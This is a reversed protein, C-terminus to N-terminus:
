NPSVGEPCSIISETVEYEVDCSYDHDFANGFRWCRNATWKVTLRSRGEEDVWDSSAAGVNVNINQFKLNCAKPFRTEWVDVGSFPQVANDASWSTHAGQGTRGGRTEASDTVGTSLGHWGAAKVGNVGGKVNEGKCSDGGTRDSGQDNGCQIVAVRNAGVPYDIWNVPAPPPPPLEAVPATPTAATGNKRRPLTVHVVTPPPPPAVVVTKFAVKVENSTLASKTRLQLVAQHDPAKLGEPIEAVVLDDRWVTIKTDIYGGSFDGTLRLRGETDGFCRGHLYLVGGSKFNGNNKTVRPSTAAAGDAYIFKPDGLYTHGNCKIGNLNLSLTPRIARAEAMIAANQEAHGPLILARTTQLPASGVKAPLMQAATAVSLPKKLLQATAGASLTTMTTSSKLEGVTSRKGKVVVTTSDPLTALKKYDDRTEVTIQAKTSPAASPAPQSVTQALATLSTSSALAATLTLLCTTNRISTNPRTM